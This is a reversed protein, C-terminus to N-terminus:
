YVLTPAVNPQAGLDSQAGAAPAPAPAFLGSRRVVEDFDAAAASPGGYSSGLANGALLANM